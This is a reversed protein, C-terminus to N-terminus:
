FARLEDAPLYSLRLVADAHDGLRDRLERGTVAAGNALIAGATREVLRVDGREKRRLAVGDTVPVRDYDRRPQARLARHEDPRPQPQAGAAGGNLLITALILLGHQFARQMRGAVCGRQRRQEESVHERYARDDRRALPAGRRGRHSAPTEARAALVITTLARM